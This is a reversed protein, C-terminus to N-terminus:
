ISRDRGYNGGRTIAAYYEIYLEPVSPEAARVGYKREMRDNFKKHLRLRKRVYEKFRKDDIM